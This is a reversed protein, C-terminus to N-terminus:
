APPKPWPPNSPDLTYNPLERLLRRYEAWNRRADATLPSDNVQTWDSAALKLDRMMRLQKWQEAVQEDATVHPTVLIGDVVKSRGPDAQEGEALEVFHGDQHWQQHHVDEDPCHSVSLVVGSAPDYTAVRM